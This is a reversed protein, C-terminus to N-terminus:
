GQIDDSWGRCPAGTGSKEDDSGLVIPTYGTPVNSFDRALFEKDSLLHYMNENLYILFSEFNESTIEYRPEEGIKHFCLIPIKGSDKKSYIIVGDREIRSWKASTLDTENIQSFLTIPLLLLIYILYKM